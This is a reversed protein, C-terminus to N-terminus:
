LLVWLLIFHCPHYRRAASYATLRKAASQLNPPVVPKQIEKIVNATEYIEEARHLLMHLKQLSRQIFVTQNNIDDASALATKFKHLWLINDDWEKQGYYVCVGSPGGSGGKKGNCVPGTGYGGNKWASTGLMGAKLGSDEVNNSKGWRYLGGSNLHKLFDDLVEYGEKTSSSHRHFLNGCGKKVSAWMSFTGLPKNTDWGHNDPKSKGSNGGVKVGCVNEIGDDKRMACLCFFNVVLNKDVSNGREGTGPNGCANGRDGVDKLAGDCLDSENMGEGFIVQAFETKVKEIDGTVNVRRIDELIKHAKQTIRHLIAQAVAAERTATLKVASDSGNGSEKTENFQKEEAFSTNITDIEGVINNPDQLDVHNIPPHAAVNYIRCLLAFQEANDVGQVVANNQGHPATHQLFSGFAVSVVIVNMFCAM